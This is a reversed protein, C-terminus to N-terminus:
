NLIELGVKSWFTKKENMANNFLTWIAPKFVPDKRLTGAIYKWECTNKLFDLYSRLQENETTTACSFDPALKLNCESIVALSFFIVRRRLDQDERCDFALRLKKQWIAQEFQYFCGNLSAADLKANSASLEAKELDFVYYDM